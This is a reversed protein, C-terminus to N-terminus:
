GGIPPDIRRLIIFYKVSLYGPQEPWPYNRLKELDNQWERNDVLCETASTWVM